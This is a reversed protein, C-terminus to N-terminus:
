APEERWGYSRGEWRMSLAKICESFQHREGKSTEELHFDLRLGSHSLLPFSKSKSPSPGLDPLIGRRM